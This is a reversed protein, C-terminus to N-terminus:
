KIVLKRKNSLDGPQQDQHNQTLVPFQILFTNNQVDEIILEANTNIPQDIIFPIKPQYDPNLEILQKM